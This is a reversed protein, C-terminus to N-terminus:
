VNMSIHPIRSSVFCPIEGEDGAQTSTPLFNHIVTKNTYTNQKNNNNNNNNNNNDGKHPGNVVVCVFCVM